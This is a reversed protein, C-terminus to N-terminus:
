RGQSWDYALVRMWYESAGALVPLEFHGYSGAPVNAVWTTTTAVVAGKADIGDVGVRVREIPGAYRNYICGSLVSPRRPDQHWDVDPPRPVGAVSPPLTRPPAPQAVAHGVALVSSALVAIALIVIRIARLLRM